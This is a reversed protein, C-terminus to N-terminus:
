YKSLSKRSMSARSGHGYGFLFAGDGALQGLRLFSRGVDANMRKIRRGIKFAPVVVAVESIGPLERVGAAYLGGHVAAAQPGHPLVGAHTVGVLRVPTVLVQQAL